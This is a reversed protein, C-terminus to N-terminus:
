NSGAGGPDGAEPASATVPTVAAAAADATAGPETETAAAPTAVLALAGCLFLTKGM